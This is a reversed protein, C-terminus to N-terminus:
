GEEENRLVGGSIQNGVLRQIRGNGRETVSRYSNVICGSLIDMLHYEEEAHAGKVIQGGAKDTRVALRSM